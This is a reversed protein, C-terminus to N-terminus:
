RDGTMWPRDQSKEWYDRRVADPVSTAPGVLAVRLRSSVMGTM